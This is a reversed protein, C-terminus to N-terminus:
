RAGNGAQGHVQRGPRKAWTIAEPMTYGALLALGARVLASYGYEALEPAAARAENELGPPVRAGKFQTSPM